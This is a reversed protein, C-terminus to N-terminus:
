GDIANMWERKARSREAQSDHKHYHCLGCRPNGCDWPDRDALRGYSLRKAMWEDHNTAPPYRDQWAARERLFRARRAGVIRDTHYRRRHATRRVGQERERLQLTRM